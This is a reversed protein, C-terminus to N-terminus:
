RWMSVNEEQSSEVSIEGETTQETIGERGYVKGHTTYNTRVRQQAQNQYVETQNRYKYPKCNKAGNEKAVCMNPYIKRDECIVPLYEQTCYKTTENKIRHRVEHMIKEMIEEVKKTENKVETFRRRKVKEIKEMNKWMVVKIEDMLGEINSFNKGYRMFKEITKNIEEYLSSNILGLKKLKEIEPLYAVVEAIAKLRVKEMLKKAREEIEKGYGMVEKRVKHMYKKMLEENLRTVNTTQNTLIVVVCGDLLFIARLEYWKAKSTVNIVTINKCYEKVSGTPNVEYTINDEELKQTINQVGSTNFTFLYM